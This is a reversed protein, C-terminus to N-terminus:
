YWVTKCRNFKQIFDWLHKPLNAYRIDNLHIDTAKVIADFYYCTRSKIHIEKLANKIEM